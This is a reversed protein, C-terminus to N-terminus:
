PLRAWVAGDDTEIVVAMPEVSRVVGDTLRDGPLYRHLSGAPSYAFARWSGSDGALVALDFDDPSLDGAHLLLRRPSAAPLIPAPAETSGSARDVTRTGDAGVHESLGAAELVRARLLRVDVARAWVSVHGLTGPPASAALSSEAQAIIGLIDRVTSRKLTLSVRVDDPM